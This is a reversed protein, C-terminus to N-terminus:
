LGQSKFAPTSTTHTDKNSFIIIIIDNPTSKMYFQVFSICYNQGTHVGMSMGSEEIMVNYDAQSVPMV